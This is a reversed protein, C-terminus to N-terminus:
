RGNRHANRDHEHDAPHQEEGGSRGSTSCDIFGTLEDDGEEVPDGKGAQHEHDSGPERQDEAQHARDVHGVTCQEKESRVDGDLQLFPHDALRAVDLRGVDANGRPDHRHEDTSQGGGDDAQEDLLHEKPPVLTLIKRWANIVTAM